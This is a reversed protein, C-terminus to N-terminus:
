LHEKVEPSFLITVTVQRESALLMKSTFIEVDRRLHSICGQQSARQPACSLGAGRWLLAPSPIFRACSVPTAKLGVNYFFHLEPAIKGRAQARGHSIAALTTREGTSSLHTVLGTARRARCSASRSFSESGSSMSIGSCSSVSSGSQSSCSRAQQRSHSTLLLRSAPPCGTQTTIQRCFCRGGRGEIWPSLYPPALTTTVQTGKGKAQSSPSTTEATPGAAEAPAPPNCCELTHAARPSTSRTKASPPRDPAAPHIIMEPSPIASSM